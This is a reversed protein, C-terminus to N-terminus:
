WGGRGAFVLLTSVDPAQAPTKATHTHVRTCLYCTLRVKLMLACVCVCVCNNTIEGWQGKSTIFLGPVTAAQWCQYVLNFTLCQLHSDEARRWM